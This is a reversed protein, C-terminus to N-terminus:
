DHGPQGNGPQASDFVGKRALLDEIAAFWREYYSLGLYTSPELREIADRFEDLTYVGRRLLTAQLAYVRAEWDAHFPEGDDRPDVPGFGEVGGVDHIRTM